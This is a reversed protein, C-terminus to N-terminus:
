HSKIRYHTPTRTTDGEVWWLFRLLDRQHPQAKFQFFMKTIGCQFAVSEKRFQLLIGLLSSILDPGILLSDNLSKGNHNASCDFVVRIKKKVRHYIGHHPIYWSPKNIDFLPVKDCSDNKIMDKMFTVYEHKYHDDRVMKRKLYGFLQEAMSLNAELKIFLEKCLMPIENHGYPLQKRYATAARFSKDKRSM